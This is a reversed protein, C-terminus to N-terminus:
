QQGSTAAAMADQKEKFREFIPQVFEELMLKLAEEDNLLLENRKLSNVWEGFYLKKLYDFEDPMLPKAESVTLHVFPEINMLKLQVQMALKDGSYKTEIYEILIDNLVSVPAGKERASTYREWVADPGEILFRRGYNVSAGQYKPAIKYTIIHDIIFKHRKEATEAISKLRDNVPQVDIFAQTATIPNGPKSNDERRHTGWLTFTMADELAELDANAMDYYEKPPTVYGAVNPAVNVADKSEPYELLKIDSVKTMTAKGTGNCTKCEQAEKYGSGACDACSDSFEWYKPFGHKLKHTKKVSGDILFDNALEIVSDFLSLFGGPMNPNIIDSNVIAPVHYFPNIFTHEELQTINEGEVKIYYDFRDDIVRYIKFSKDIGVAEKEKNSVNLVLYELMTGKPLYDFIASSSKYTPYVENNANIEMFVVAGPDDLYHPLWHTEIWKKCNLGDRVNNALTSAAKDQSESLNYYTSGGRASFVKDIPRALRAFLDKNGKAYKVRLNRLSESELGEITKIAAEINESYIHKRLEKSCEQAKTVLERNPNTTIIKKIQEFDLTM